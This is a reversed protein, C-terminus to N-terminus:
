ARVAMNSDLGVTFVARDADCLAETRQTRAGPMARQDPRPREADDGVNLGDQHAESEESPQSM